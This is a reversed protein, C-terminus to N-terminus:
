RSEKVSEAQPMPNNEPRNQMPPRPLLLILIISLASFYLFEIAEVWGPRYLYKGLLVQEIISAHIEVGATIANLPTTVRDKLGVASTGILVISGNIRSTDFDAQLLRWASVRRPADQRTYHLWMRGQGDTPVTLAGIRIEQIGAEVGYGSDKQDGSIRIEYSDAGQAVRLVEAAFSPLIQDGLKFILPVRRNVGDAEPLFNFAGSGRTNSGINNLNVISGTFTPLFPRPDPGNIIIEAPQPPMQPATRQTLAFGDVVRTKAIAAALINDHDPLLHAMERLKEVELTSAWLPLVNAPSTRDPEALIIDLGIVSAGAAGLRDVLAAMRTRPWPWQGLKQLSSDDIDVILVPVPTYPRPEIRQYIDFAQMRLNEIFQPFRYHLTLALGLLVLPALVHLWQKRM